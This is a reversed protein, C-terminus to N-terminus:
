KKVNLFLSFHQTFVCVFFISIMAVPEIALWIYAICMGAIVLLIRLTQGMYFSSAIKKASRAGAHSFAKIAFYWLPLIYIMGGIFASYASRWDAILWWIATGLLTVGLEIFLIQKTLQLGQKNILKSSM